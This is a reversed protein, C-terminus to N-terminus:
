DTSRFTAPKLAVLSLPCDVCGVRDKRAIVTVHFRSSVSLQEGLGWTEGVNAATPNMSGRLACSLTFALFEAFFLFSRKCNGDLM